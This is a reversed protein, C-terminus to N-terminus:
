GAVKWVIAEAGGANKRRLGSDVIKGLERLPKMRPSVSVEKYGTLSALEAITLGSPSSALADLIKAHMTNPRVQRAARKSTEPDTRRAKGSEQVQVLLLQLPNM